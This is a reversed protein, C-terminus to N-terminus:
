KKPQAGQRCCFIGFIVKKTEPFGGGDHYWFRLFRNKENDYNNPVKGM